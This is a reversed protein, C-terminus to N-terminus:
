PDLSRLCHKCVDPHWKCGDCCDHRQKVITEFEGFVPIPEAGGKNLSGAFETSGMPHKQGAAKAVAEVGEYHAKAGSGGSQSIDNAAQEYIRMYNMIEEKTVGQPLQNHDNHQCKSTM